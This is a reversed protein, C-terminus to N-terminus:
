VHNRLVYSYLFNAVSMGAALRCYPEVYHGSREPFCPRVKSSECSHTKWYYFCLCQNPYCVPTRTFVFCVLASM